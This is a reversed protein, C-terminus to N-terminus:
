RWGSAIQTGDQELASIGGAEQGRPCSKDGRVRGAGIAETSGCAQAGFRDTGVPPQITSKWSSPPPSGQAVTTTTMRPLCAVALAFAFAGIRARNSLCGMLGNGSAM